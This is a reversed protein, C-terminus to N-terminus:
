FVVVHRRAGDEEKDKRSELKKVRRVALGVGLPGMITCLVIAWTVILFMDSSEDAGKGDASFVGRSEAVRPILFGIEGRACMAPAAFMAKTCQVVTKQRRKHRKDIIDPFTDAHPHSRVQRQGLSSPTSRALSAEICAHLPYPSALPHLFFPQLIKSVAPQYYHEYIASVRTQDTAEDSDSQHSHKSAGKQDVEYTAGTVLGILSLTHITFAAQSKQLASNLRADPDAERYSNLWATVPSVLVARVVNVWSFSDDGLNSIVQVMVVPLGVVDDMMAASTLVVGLRSSALGSSALLTFTTGLSTSCLAAGAAFAQVPTADLLGQLTYSLSIPLAIGTLAVASSLLLSAKLSPFSLLSAVSAALWQAGPVGWAMGVLVQGLLGCNLLGDLAANIIDLLLLFSTLVLIAVM